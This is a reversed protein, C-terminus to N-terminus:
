IEDIMKIANFPCEKACIGCGKCYDYNTEIRLLKGDKKITEIAMDPCFNVCLMCHKCKEEDWIPKKSRWSGTKNQLSSAPKTIGGMLEDSMNMKIM